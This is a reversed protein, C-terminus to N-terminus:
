GLNSNPATPIEVSTETDKSSQTPFIRYATNLLSMAFHMENRGFANRQTWICGSSSPPSFSFGNPVNRSANPRLLICKPATQMGSTPTVTGFHMKHQHNDGFANREDRSANPSKLDGFANRRVRICKPVFHMQPTVNGDWKAERM